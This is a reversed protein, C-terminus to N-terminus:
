IGQFLGPHPPSDAVYVSEQRSGDEVGSAREAEPTCGALRRRKLSSLLSPTRPGAYGPMLKRSAGPSTIPSPLAGGKSMLPSALLSSTGRKRHEPLMQPTSLRTESSELPMRPRYFNNYPTSSNSAAQKKPQPSASMCPASVDEEEEEESEELSYGLDFNVSFYDHSNDFSGSNKQVTPSKCHATIAEDTMSNDTVSKSAAATTSHTNTDRTILKVRPTHTIHKTLALDEANLRHASEATNTASCTSKPTHMHLVNSTNKPSNAVPGAGPSSRPTVGPTSIDPITMQLFAEDDGFLDMSEDMQTDHKARGDTLDPMQENRMDRLCSDKRETMRDDKSEIKKHKEAEEGVQKDECIEDDAERSNHRIDHNDNVEEEGFVEDWTPSDAAASSRSICQQQEEQRPWDHYIKSCEKGVPPKDSDADNDTDSMMVEDDDDDDADLTFNVQFPQLPQQPSPPLTPAAMDAELDETLSPPSRSLLEAVNALIVKLSQDRGPLLKATSSPPAPGWEPLYFMAQLEVDEDEDLKTILQSLKDLNVPEGVGTRESKAVDENIIACDDDMDAEPCDNISSLPCIAEPGPHDTFDDDDHEVPIRQKTVALASVFSTGRTNEREAGKDICELDSSTPKPKNNTTKTCTKTSKQKKQRNKM